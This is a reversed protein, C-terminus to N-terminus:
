DVARLQVGEMELLGADSLVTRMGAVQELRYQTQASIVLIVRRWETYEPEEFLPRSVSRFQARLDYMGADPGEDGRRRLVWKEFDGIRAGLYKIEMWGCPHNMTQNPASRLEGFVYRGM